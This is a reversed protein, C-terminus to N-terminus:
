KVVRGSIASSPSSKSRELREDTKNLDRVTAHRFDYKVSVVGVLVIISILGAVIAVDKTNVKM